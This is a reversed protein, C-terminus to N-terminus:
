TRDVLGVRNPLRFLIRFGRNCTEKRSDRQERLVSDSGVGKRREQIIAGKVQDELEGDTEPGHSWDAGRSPGATEIPGELPGHVSDAGHPGLSYRDGM